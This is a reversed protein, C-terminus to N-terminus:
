DDNYEVKETSLTISSCTDLNVRPSKSEITNLLEQAENLISWGEKLLMVGRGAKKRGDEIHNKSSIFLDLVNVSGTISPCAGQITQIIEALQKLHEHIVFTADVSATKVKIVRRRKSAKEGTSNETKQPTHPDETKRGEKGEDRLRKKNLLDHIQNFGKETSEKTQTQNERAVKQKTQNEMAESSYVVRSFGFNSRWWNALNEEEPDDDRSHTQGM